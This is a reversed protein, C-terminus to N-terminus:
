GGSRNVWKVSVSWQAPSLWLSDVLFSTLVFWWGSANKFFVLYGTGAILAGPILILYLLYTFYRM